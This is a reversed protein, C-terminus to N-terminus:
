VEDKLARSEFHLFLGGLTAPSFSTAAILRMKKIRASAAIIATVSITDAAGAEGLAMGTAEAGISPGFWTPGSRTTEHTGSGSRSSSFWTARGRPACGALCGTGADLWSLLSAM